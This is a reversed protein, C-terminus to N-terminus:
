LGGAAASLEEHIEQEIKDDLEMWFATTHMEHPDEPLFIKGWGLNEHTELKIKKYMTPIARVSVEGETKTGRPIQESHFDDLVRLDVKIEADTYYDVKVPKCYAKCNKFDFREVQYQKSEHMYIAGEHVLLPASFLDVEGIPRTEATQDLIVVNEPAGNRLNVDQAPYLESMWHWKGDVFRLVGKEALYDLIERTSTPDVGFSEGEEFPLEFAACKIHSSLIILNNPDLTGSEPPLGLFYEPHNIIYQDLPSSSGVLIACSMECRRGARGAQQWTSSVSGPYGAMLCLHLQGIDIGLELANTSVVTRIKGNRFGSEIERRESPLYGGRYGRVLQEPKGLAKFARRIYTLLLEVRLRSRGFVITQIEGVAFKKCLRSTEKVVSRRIGLEQNVVPPNYFIFQKEGRPAGNNDVLAVDDGVIKSAMEVPNAITASCCIFQPNSGYFRCVRKLRRIVNAVHSGFVGRYHHLEDIVVYQLNEFLRVWITHHPLIGLHLMDPNTIIVQGSIRIAKRASQPTDGDFTYTKIEAKADQSLSVLEDLQDRGLAKTPFLYLARRAPERLLTNVVPLNYCLTKGSATPTVVVIHRGESIRDYAERQHSFLRNIGRSRLAEKLSEPLDPLDAYMGDRAPITFWHTVCKQFKADKRLADLLQPLNM